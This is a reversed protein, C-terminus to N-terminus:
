ILLRLRAEQAVIEIGRQRKSLLWAARTEREEARAGFIGSHVNHVVFITVREM